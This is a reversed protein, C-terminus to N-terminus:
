APQEIVPVYAEAVALGPDPFLASCARVCGRCVRIAECVEHDPVQGDQTGYRERWAVLLTRYAHDPTLGLMQLGAIAWEPDGKFALATDTPKICVVCTGTHNGQL